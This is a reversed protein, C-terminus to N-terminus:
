KSTHQLLHCRSCYCVMRRIIVLYASPSLSRYKSQSQSLSLSREKNYYSLICVRDTQETPVCSIKLENNDQSFGLEILPLRGFRQPEFSSSSSAVSYKGISCFFALSTESLCIENVNWTLDCKYRSIM